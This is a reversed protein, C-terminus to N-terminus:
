EAKLISFFNEAPAHDYPNGRRSKSPTIDYSQTLRFYLAHLKTVENWIFGRATDLQNVISCLDTIPAKGFGDHPLFRSGNWLLESKLFAVSSFDLIQRRGEGTDFSFVCCFPCDVSTSSDMKIM